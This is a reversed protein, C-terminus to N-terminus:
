EATWTPKTSGWPNGSGWGSAQWAVQEPELAVYPSRPQTLDCYFSNSPFLSHRILQCDRVGNALLTLQVETWIPPFNLAPIKNVTATGAFYGIVGGGLAGLGAGIAAGPPGGLFAGGAAGGKAGLYAGGALGVGAGVVGGAKAPSVTRAGVIQNFQIGQIGGRTINQKNQKTPYIQSALGFQSPSSYIRSDPQFNSSAININDHTTILGNVYNSFRFGSNGTIFSPTITTSPKPDSVGLSGSGAPSDPHIWSISGVSASISKAKTESAQSDRSTDADHRAEVLSVDGMGDRQITKDPYSTNQQLTHTLEHAILRRGEQTGPTFRGGGFVIDHGVTYANANVDQASRAAEGGTHVRVRSFDHGFRQGMDQQLEPDLPKGPSSLVRDVSAPAEMDAHGNAQGTFRQIRPSAASITSNTPATMVQDAVRDAARELPDNSAGIALKRQLGSKKKTCGM